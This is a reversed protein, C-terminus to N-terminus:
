FDLLAYHAAIDEISYSAIVNGDKDYSTADYILFSSIIYSNLRKIEVCVGEDCKWMPKGNRKSITDVRYDRGDVGYEITLIGSTKTVINVVLRVSGCTANFNTFKNYNQSLRHPDHRYGWGFGGYVDRHAFMKRINVNGSRAVMVLTRNNFAHVWHMRTSSLKTLDYEIDRFDAAGLEGPFLDSWMTFRLNPVHTAALKRLYSFENLRM